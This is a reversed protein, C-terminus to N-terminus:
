YMEDIAYRGVAARMEFAISNKYFGVTYEVSASNGM